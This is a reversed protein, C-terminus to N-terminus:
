SLCDDFGGESEDLVKARSKHDGSHLLTTLWEPLWRHGYGVMVCQTKENVSILKNSGIGKIWVM